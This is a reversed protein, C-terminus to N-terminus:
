EGGSVKITHKVSVLEVVPAAIHDELGFVRRLFEPNAKRYMLRASVRLETIEPNDISFVVDSKREGPGTESYSESIRPRGIGPCQFAIDAIEVGGSQLANRYSAGVVEWLNHTEVPLGRNDYWDAKYIIPADLAPNEADADGMLLLTRGLDDEVTVEVWSELLDLPGAPFDHGTKNNHLFLTINVLEGPKIKDPASIQIDVVPGEVWKSAIEPIDIEGRLWAITKEAQEVGGPLSQTVPIYMNSALARHSRHKGDYASRYSDREDGSAPDNSAVLPMHCERCEITQEPSDEHYWRGGKWSDYENQEQALGVDTSIGPLPVQKHCAACFDSDRYLTRRYDSRHQDPLSRVLFRNLNKILGSESEAFLYRRPTALRYSGNGATTTETISHCVVCSVGDHQYLRGDGISSGDRTASLLAFPDHCGACSRTEAAGRAEALLDQVRLFLNDEAAFGHASPRWESYIENHCGASGCTEARPYATAKLAGHSKLNALARKLADRAIHQHQTSLDLDDVAAEIRDIPGRENDEGTLASDLLGQLDQSSVFDALDEALQLRWPPSTIEARSPWFPRDAGYRFDYSDAFPGFAEPDRDEATALVWTAALLGLVVLGSIGAFGHRTDKGYSTSTKRDRFFVPSVHWVVLAGLLLGAYLHVAGVLRIGSGGVIGHFVLYLGSLVSVGAMMMSLLAVTRPRGEVFNRRRQWHRYMQLCVPVSFVLGVASHILVSYQSFPGFPLLKILVGSFLGYALLGTAIWTLLNAVEISQRDTGTASQM